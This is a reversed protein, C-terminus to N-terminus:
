MAIGKSRWVVGLCEEDSTAPPSESIVSGLLSPFQFTKQNSPLTDLEQLLANREKEIEKLRREIEENRSLPTM